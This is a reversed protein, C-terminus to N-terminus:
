RWLTLRLHSTRQEYHAAIGPDVQIHLDVVVDIIPSRNGKPSPFWANYTSPGKGCATCIVVVKEPQTGWLQVCGSATRVKNAKQADGVQRANFSCCPM